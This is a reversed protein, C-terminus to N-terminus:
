PDWLIGTINELDVFYETATLAYLREDRTNYFYALITKKTREKFAKIKAVIWYAVVSGAIKGDKLVDIEDFFMKDANTSFWDLQNLEADVLRVEFIGDQRAKTIIALINNDKIYFALVIMKQATAREIIENMKADIADTVVVFTKSPALISKVEWWGAGFPLSPFFPFIPHPNSVLICTLNHL